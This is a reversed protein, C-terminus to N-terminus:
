LCQSKCGQGGKQSKEEEKGSLDVLQGVDIRGVTGLVKKANGEGVEVVSSFASARM